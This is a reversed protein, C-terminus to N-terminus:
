EQQYQDLIEQLYKVYELLIKERAKVLSAVQAYWDKLQNDAVGLELPTPLDPVTLEQLPPPPPCSYVPVKVEITEITPQCPPCTACGTNLMAIIVCLAIVSFLAVGLCGDGVEDLWKWRPENM